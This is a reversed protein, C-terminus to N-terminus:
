CRYCPIERYRYPSLCRRHTRASGAALRPHPRPCPRFVLTLQVIKLHARWGIIVKSSMSTGQAVQPGPKVTDLGAALTGVGGVRGDGWWVSSGCVEKPEEKDVSVSGDSSEERGDETELLAVVGASGSSDLSVGGSAGAFAPGSVGGSAAWPLGDSVGRSMSGSSAGGVAWVGSATGEGFRCAGLRRYLTRGLTEM